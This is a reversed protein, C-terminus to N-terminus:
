TSESLSLPIVIMIATGTGENSSFELSGRLAVVRNELIQLGRGKESTYDFGIGDDEISIILEGDRCYLQVFAHDARAHKIINDAAEQVIFFTQDFVQSSLRAPIDFFQFVFKTDAPKGIETLLSSIARVLSRHAPAQVPIIM